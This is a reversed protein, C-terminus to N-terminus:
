NCGTVTAGGCECYNREVETVPFLARVDPCETDDPVRVMEFTASDITRQLTQNNLLSVDNARCNAMANWSVPDYCDFVDNPEKVIKCGQIRADLVPQGNSKLMVDVAGTIRDCSDFTGNFRSISRSGLTYCAGLVGTGPDFARANPLSFFGMPADRPSLSWTTYGPAGVPDKDDDIWCPPENDSCMRSPPLQTSTVWADPDSPNPLRMGFTIAEYPTLFAGGPQLTTTPLPAPEGEGFELHDLAGLPIYQGFKQGNLNHTPTVTAGCGKAKTNLTTGDYDFERLEWAYTAVGTGGCVVVAGDGNLLVNDWSVVLETRVAWRGTLDCYNFTCGNVGHGNSNGTPTYGPNCECTFSSEGDLNNNICTANPDCDDLGEACEDVDRCMNSAGGDMMPVGGDNPETGADNDAGADDDGSLACACAFSGVTNICSANANCDDTNDACEDADNCTVGNGTWAPANCTCTFSGATNACTANVDCNDTNDACEDRDSCAFGDGSFGTNCACAPGNDTESCTADRHCTVTECSDARPGGSDM